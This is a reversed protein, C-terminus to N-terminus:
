LRKAVGVTKAFGSFDTKPNLFRGIAKGPGSNAFAAVATVTGMVGVVGKAVKHGRAVSSPNMRKVQQEMNMRNVLDKLEKDSLEHVKKKKAANHRQADESHSGSKRRVGWKQGKVGHHELESM